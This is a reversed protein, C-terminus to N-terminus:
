KEDDLALGFYREVGLRIWSGVWGPRGMEGGRARELRFSLEIEEIL